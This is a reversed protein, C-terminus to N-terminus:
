DRSFWRYVLALGNVTGATVEATLGRALRYSLRGVTGTDSLAQRLSLTLDDTLRKSAQVFRREIDSAGDNLGSVVSDAPLVSGAAGIEGSRMTVEDIGFRQYFPEGDSLFSAGVSFLLAVDGGSDNPGHGLLLWSLKEIESVEPYSVLDIRPRRATGSVRVGAQVQLGTRLAEINLVPSAIDGQFTVTGRRLQLRQGYAEIAGGRTRLAGIASLKGQAMTLTMDGVLGSDVGYGTLYFRPGLDVKLNLTVDLPLPPPEQVDQRTQGPKLVIVDSDLTPVSGLMDLGFWGADATIEGQVDIKPLEALLRIRGSIMAYRDARQLIPYRYFDVNVQGRSELIFWEGSLTLNGGQADPNERVWTDTRWEKPTVRLQAPFELRELVLREGDLRARLTGNLLRIGDDIRIIRLKEGTITGSGGWQGDARSQLRLDARVAGGFEIADGTFLSVWGLDAIDADVDVTKIDEPAMLFTGPSPQRLLTRAVASVEGMRETAVDLDAQVRSHGEATPELQLQLNFRRLGLPFDPEAPVMVDGSLREIRANGSLAGDYALSWDLGFDIAWRDNGEESLVKIGGKQPADDEGDDLQLADIVDAVLAPSVALREVNGRTAWRGVRGESGLHDVRLVQRTGLLADIRTAGVSWQSATDPAGAFYRLALPEALRVGLGAHQVDLTALQGRWGPGHAENAPDGGWSGQLALKGSVPAEGPKGASADAPVYTAELTAGHASPQGTVQGALTLGGPLGPWFHALQSAQVNLLLRSDDSGFSGQTRVRNGGLALDIDVQPLRLATLDPPANPMDPAQAGPDELRAAVSGQLPQENWRSGEAVNISVDASALRQLGAVRIDFRSAATLVAPPIADGVLQGLNLRTMDLSGSLRDLAMGERHEPQWTVDAKLASGDALALDVVATKLPMQERPALEAHGNLHMGQGSGQVRLNLSELSGSAQLQLDLACSPDTEQAGPLTPLYRRACLPSDASTGSAVVGLQVTAPWPDAPQLLNAEGQVAFRLAEYDLQLSRLILQGGSQNVTLTSAFDRVGVPLPAGDITMQLDGLAARDVAVVVPLVPMRFPEATPEETGSQMDISLKGVALNRVRLRREGLERWAVDLDIDAARVRLGPLPLDLEGITLGDWVSGQVGTVTGDVFQVGTNLAWRTGVSTSVVWFVFGSVVMLFVIAVPGAWILVTRLLKLLWTM